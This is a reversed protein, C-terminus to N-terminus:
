FRQKSTLFYFRLGFSFEFDTIPIDSEYGWTYNGKDYQEFNPEILPKFMDTRRKLGGGIYPNFGMSSSIPFLFGYNLTFGYKVRNFANWNSRATGTELNQQTQNPFKEFHNIYFFQASFYASVQQEQDEKPLLYYVEPRAEYLRYDKGESLFALNERGYGLDIGMAWRGNLRHRYGLRWRTLNSSSVNAPNALPLFYFPSLIDFTIANFSTETISSARRQATSSFCFALGVVTGLFIKKMNHKEKCIFYKQLTPPM